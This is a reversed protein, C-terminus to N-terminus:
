KLSLIAFEYDKNTEEFLIELKYYKYIENKEMLNLEKFKSEMFVIKNPLNKYSMLHKFKFDFLDQTIFNKNLFQQYNIDFAFM